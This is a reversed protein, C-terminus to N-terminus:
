RWNGLTRWHGKTTRAFGGDPPAEPVDRVGLKYKGAYIFTPMLHDPPAPGGIVTFERDLLDNRSAFTHGRGTTRLFSRLLITFEPVETGPRRGVHVEVAQPSAELSWTDPTDGEEGHFHVSFPVRGAELVRRKFEDDPLESVFHFARESNKVESRAWADLLELSRQVYRAEVSLEDPQTAARRIEQLMQQQAEDASRQGLVESVVSTLIMAILLLRIIRRQRQTKQSEGWHFELYAAVGAVLLATLTIWLM